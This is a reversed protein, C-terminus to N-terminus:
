TLSIERERSIIFPLYVENLKNELYKTDKIFFRIDNELSCLINETDKEALYLVKRMIEDNLSSTIFLFNNIENQLCIFKEKTRDKKYTSADEALISRFVQIREMSVPHIRLIERMTMFAHKIRKDKFDYAWRDTIPLDPSCLLLGDNALKKTILSKSTIHLGSAAKEMYLYLGSNKIFDLNEYIRSFDTYPNFMIFGYDIPICYRNLLQIARKNEEVNAKKAYLRLDVDNGSEFGIFVRNLGIRKMQHLKKAVPETILEARLDFSFNVHIDREIIGNSFEELREFCNFETGFSSDTFILYRAELTRYLYEVEDLVNKMSRIRVCKSDKYYESSVCCFTCCGSCGRSACLTYTKSANKRSTRDPFALEDLDKVRPRMENRLIHKGERYVIGKCGNLSKGSLVRKTLECITEEGEGVIVSDIFPYNELFYEPFLTPEKNGFVIHVTSLEKRILEAFKVCVEINFQLVSLGIIQPNIKKIETVAINLDSLKYYLSSADIAERKLASVLYEVGLWERQEIDAGEMDFIVFLVDM